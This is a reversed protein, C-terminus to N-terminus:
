DKAIGKERAEKALDRIIIEIPEIEVEMAKLDPLIKKALTEAASKMESLTPAKFVKTYKGEVEEYVEIPEGKCVKMLFGIPDSEGRIRLRDLERESTNKNKAGLPRPM